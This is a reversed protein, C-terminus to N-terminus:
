FFCTLDPHMGPKLEPIEVETDGQNTYKDSLTETAFSAFDGHRCGEYITGQEVSASIVQPVSLSPFQTPQAQSGVAPIKRARPFTVEPMHSPIARTPAM